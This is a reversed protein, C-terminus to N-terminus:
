TEGRSKVPPRGATLAPHVRSSLLRDYISLLKKEGQSWNYYREVAARGNRGHRLLEQPNGVYYEIARVVADAGGNQPVILGCDNELITHRLAPLDVAIIPKGCAMYEYLKIPGAKGSMAWDYRKSNYFLIFCIDAESLREAVETHPIWGTMEVDVLGASARCLRVVSRRDENSIFPGILLLKPRLGSRRAFGVAAEVLIGTGRVFSLGGSYALVLKKPDFPKPRFAFFELPVYNEITFARSRPMGFSVYRQAKPEEVGILCDARCNIAKDLFNAISAQALQVLRPKKESPWTGPFSDRIESIVLPRGGASCRRLLKILYAAVLADWEHCHYITARIRLGLRFFGVISDIWALHPIRSLVGRRGVRRIVIGEREDDRDAKGSVITVAYGAKTLSRGEKYFIRDDYPDHQSTLIFVPGM